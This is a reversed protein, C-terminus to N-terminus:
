LLPLSPGDEGPIRITVWGGQAAKEGRAEVRCRVDFGLVETMLAVLEVRQETAPRLTVQRELTRADRVCVLAAPRPAPARSVVTAKVLVLGGTFPRTLSREAPRDQRSVLWVSSLALDEPPTSRQATTACASLTLLGLGLGLL